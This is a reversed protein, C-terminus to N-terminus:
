FDMEMPENMSGNGENSNANTKKNRLNMNGFSYTVTLGIRRGGRWNKSDQEFGAGSTITRWKRSNLIDRANLSISLKRDLFSKRIGADLSYNPERRGQAVVRQSNYNGTVQLSISYPLMFNAIMRANWSFDEEPEGIVPQSAGEPLYTFGDLKSYYLNVTTTLDWFDFLKNKGVLEIGAARTKAINEFTTKMINDELFRIRQIVDNTSRYYGSFSLTHAEWTKIYNLEFANSFEPSLLPNGFSINASDSINTFSNLQGGWPRSIRRTYNVQLENNKPLAYSLFVSPFLSFYDDNFFPVDGKGQGYALSKTRTQSYEGRLGLQIGLKDIKSSYVAYIAHVNKNYIFRNFLNEDEQWPATEDMRSFTEVPSDEKSFTGKYGAELKHKENFTNTYDLQAEWNHNRIDNNQQQYSHTETGDKYQSDQTYHTSNNMGWNNYSLTFDINSKSSFDHKYGMEVNGGNMNNSANSMRQSTIYSGPVNSHYNITNNNDRGGFMGFGNLTLHDKSTAHYTLGIRAFLNNGSNESESTQNLYTNGTESINTRNTYGGGDRRRHRYGVNAYADLKSSSYNINASANYGGETDAGVQASGYYGPERDEKLVINIIGATGEPSYKASPNTIVEITEITEAPMQELIQARNDASLGSAKGNIWITVSSNGRLSVEGENDVEVSPINSLIDSATGGTSSIDQDVNFVKKDIEFRMQSKQGVVEVEGIVQSDESLLITRLDINSNSATISLEKEITKYGMYSIILSYNGLPLNDIYFLGEQDTIGGQVSGDAKQMRVNVFELAEKTQADIIKGKISGPAIAYIHLCIAQILISTLFKRM